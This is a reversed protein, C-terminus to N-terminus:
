RALICILGTGKAILAMAIMAPISYVPFLLPVAICILDTGSSAIDFMAERLEKNAKEKQESTIGVRGSEQYSKIAKYTASSLSVALGICAVVSFIKDAGLKIIFLFVPSQKGIKAVYLALDVIGWKQLTQINGNLGEITSCAMCLHQIWSRSKQQIRIKSIIAKIKVKKVREDVDIQHTQLSAKLAKRVQTKNYYGDKNMVAKFVSDVITETESKSINQNLVFEVSEQLSKRLEDQDLTQKSFPNAWYILNKYTGYFNILKITGQVAKSFDTSTGITRTKCFEIAETSKDIIQLVKKIASPNTVVNTVVNNVSILGYNICGKVSDITM